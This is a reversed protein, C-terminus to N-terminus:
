ASTPDLGPLYKYIQWFSVIPCLFSGTVFSIHLVDRPVVLIKSKQQILRFRKEKRALVNCCIIKCTNILIIDSLALKM